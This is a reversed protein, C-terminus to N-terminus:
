PATDAATEAGIPELMRALLEVPHDSLDHDNTTAIFEILDLRREGGEYKAVFSQPGGLRRAVEHQTLGARRREQKLLGVLRVHEPTRLSKRLPKRSIERM